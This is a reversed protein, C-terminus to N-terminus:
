SNTPMHIWLRQLELIGVVFSVVHKLHYNFSQVLWALKGMLSLYHYFGVFALQSLFDLCNHLPRFEEPPVGSLRQLLFNVPFKRDKLESKNLRQFNCFEIWLYFPEVKCGGFNDLLVFVGRQMSIIVHAFDRIHWLDVCSPLFLFIHLHGHPLYIAVCSEVM